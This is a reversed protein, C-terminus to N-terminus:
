MWVKKEYEDDDLERCSYQYPYNDVSILVKPQSACSLPLLVYM